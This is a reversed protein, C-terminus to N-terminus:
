WRAAHDEAVGALGDIAVREGDAATLHGSFTGFPQVYKSM